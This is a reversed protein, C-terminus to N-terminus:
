MMLGAWSEPYQSVRVSASTRWNKRRKEWKKKREKGRKCLSEAKRGGYRMKEGQREKDRESENHRRARDKEM